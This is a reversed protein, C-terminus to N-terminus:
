RRFRGARDIIAIDTFEIGSHDTASYALRLGGLDIDLSELARQLEAHTCSNPCRRLAEVTVKAAAFGEMMAPTLQVNHARALRAADRTLPVSAMREDPFVQSVMVGSANGGLAKIFGTSANNSVTAIPASVGQRRLAEVGSAV